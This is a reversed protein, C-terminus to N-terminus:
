EDGRDVVRFEQMIEVVRECRTEWSLKKLEPNKEEIAAMAREFRNRGAYIRVDLVPKPPPESKPPESSPENEEPHLLEHAQLCVGDWNLKDGGPQERVYNTAKEFLNRGRCARIKQEIENMQRQGTPSPRFNRSAALQMMGEIFPTNTLAVSTLIAGITKGSKPDVADFVISVSAWKYRGEKVYTRAPELWRTLAFLGVDGEADLDVALEVIWGQAPAGQVGINGAAPPEESAHHFDWQILDVNGFGDPGAKYSPNSRFNRVVQEFLHKDFTFEFAGGNYGKFTGAKAVQQWILEDDNTKKRRALDVGPFLVSPGYTPGFKSLRVRFGNPDCQDRPEKLKVKLARDVAAASRAGCARQYEALMATQEQERKKGTRRLLAVVLRLDDRDDFRARRPPLKARQEAAEIEHLFRCADDFNEAIVRLELVRPDTSKAPLIANALKLMTAITEDFSM